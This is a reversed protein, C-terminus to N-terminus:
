EEKGSSNVGEEPPTMYKSMDMGWPYKGSRIGKQKEKHDAKAKERKRREEVRKAAKNILEKWKRRTLGPWEKHKLRWKVIIDEIIKSTEEAVDLDKVIIDNKKPIYYPTPVYEKFVKYYNGENGFMKKCVAMAFGKEPDYKEDEGAKVITKTGDKWLIITAPYNFIVDKINSRIDCNMTTEEKIYAVINPKCLETSLGYQRLIGSNLRDIGYAGYIDNLLKRKAINVENEATNPKSLETSLHCQRLIESNLRDIEIGYAENHGSLGYLSNSKKITERLNAIFGGPYNVSKVGYISNLLRRKAIDVENEARRFVEAMFCHLDIFIKGGPTMRSEIRSVMSAEISIGYYYVIDIRLGLLVEPRRAFMINYPGICVNRNAGVSSCRYLTKDVPNKIVWDSADRIFKSIDSEYKTVVVINM